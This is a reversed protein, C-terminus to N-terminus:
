EMYGLSRLEELVSEDYRAKDPADLELKKRSAATDAHKAELLARADAVAQPRAAVLSYKEQPDQDLDYLATNETIRGRIYKLGDFIVCELDDYYLLGASMLAPPPADGGGGSLLPAFSPASMASPEFPVGCIELISPTLSTLSVPQNTDGRAHNGPLKILLPSHILENYLTHGHEWGGHDWFEEGHDHTVILLTDEYLSLRKLTDMVRGLAHDVYHVEGDYLARIHAREEATPAFRGTRLATWADVANAIAPPPEGEPRFPAPPTYPWHPDLYHLYLFYDTDRHKELWTCALESLEDTTGEPVEAHRSLRRLVNAGISEAETGVLQPFFTYDAFGQCVNAARTLFVNKGIAGTYYGARSLRESLTKCADPLRSNWSIAGHADADLGTMISSVSPLTWPAAAYAEHFVMSEGALSELTPLSLGNPDYARLADRRLSDIVVLIIRPVKHEGSAGYPFVLGEPRPREVLTAAPSMLIVLTLAASIASGWGRRALPISIALTLAAVALFIALATLSAGEFFDPLRYKSWWLFVLGEAAVLPLTFVAASVARRMGPREDWARYAQYALVGCALALFVAVAAKFAADLILRPEVDSLHLGALLGVVTIVGLFLAVSFALAAPAIRFPAALVRALAFLVGYILLFVCLSVALAPLLEPFWEWEDPRSVLGFVTDLLALTLCASLWVFSVSLGRRREQQEGPM